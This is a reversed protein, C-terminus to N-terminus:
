STKEIQEKLLAFAMKEAMAREVGGNFEIIAARENWWERWKERETKTMRLTLLDFQMGMAVRRQDVQGVAKRDLM